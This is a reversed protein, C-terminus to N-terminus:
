LRSRIKRHLVIIRDLVADTCLSCGALVIGDIYFVADAPCVAFDTPNLIIPMEQM